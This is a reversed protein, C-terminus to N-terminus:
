QQELCIKSYSFTAYAQIAVCVVLPKDVVKAHYLRSTVLVGSNVKNAKQEIAQTLSDAQQQLFHVKCDQFAAAKAEYAKWKMVQPALHQRHQEVRCFM